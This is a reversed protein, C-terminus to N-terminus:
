ILLRHLEMGKIYVFWSLERWPLSGHVAGQEEVLSSLCNIAEFPAGM